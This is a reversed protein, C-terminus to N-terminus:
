IYKINRNSLLQLTIIHYQFIFVFWCFHFLQHSLLLLSVSISFKQTNCLLRFFFHIYENISMLRVIQIKELSFCLYILCLCSPVCFDSVCKMTHSIFLFSFVFVFCFFEDSSGIAFLLMLEWLYITRLVIISDLM